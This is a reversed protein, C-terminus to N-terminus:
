YACGTVDDGQGSLQDAIRRLLAELAGQVEPPGHRAVIDHAEMCIDALRHLMRAADEAEIESLSAGVRARQSAM